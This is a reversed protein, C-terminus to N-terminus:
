MFAKRWTLENVAHRLVLISEFGPIVLELPIVRFQLLEVIRQVVAVIQTAHNQCGFPAAVDNTVHRDHELRHLFRSDRRFHQDHLLMQIQHVLMQRHAASRNRDNQEDILPCRSPM